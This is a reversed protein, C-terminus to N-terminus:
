PFAKFDRIRFATPATPRDSEVPVPNAGGIGRHAGTRFSVRNLLEGPGALAEM